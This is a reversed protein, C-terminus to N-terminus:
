TIKKVIESEYKEDEICEVITGGVVEGIYKNKVPRKEIAKQLFWEYEIDIHGIDIAHYGDKSLDYALVTATPGLAILILKSKDQKKVTDLIYDYQSFADKSPCIIRQISRVSDFLDNGVGLRSEEGEVILINRDTWLKKLKKFRYEAKSKDKHDVYLRTVLADYYEKNMDIMKYIKYRNLNLYKNWYERPKEACWDFDTFVDPIGIIHNPQRSKIIEQLRFSLEASYPQFLLNRGQILSFEGDGFRSMSYKCKVIKNLTEDTSKVSPAEVTISIVKNYLITIIDRIKLVSYYSSLLYRKM